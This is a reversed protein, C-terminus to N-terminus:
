LLPYLAAQVVFSVLVIMVLKGYWRTNSWRPLYRQFVPLILLIAYVAAFSLQFSVSFLQSPDILLIIIAAAATLNKLDYAKNFLRAYTFLGGTISARMISPSFGTLGAYVFL